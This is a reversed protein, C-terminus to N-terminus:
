IYKLCWERQIASPLKYIYSNVYLVHTDTVHIEDEQRRKKKKLIIDSDDDVALKGLNVDVKFM